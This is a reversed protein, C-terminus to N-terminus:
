EDEIKVMKNDRDAIMWQTLLAFVEIEIGQDHIINIIEVLNM